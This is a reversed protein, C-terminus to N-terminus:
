FFSFLCLLFPLVSKKSVDDDTFPESSDSDATGHASGGIGGGSRNPNDQQHHSRVGAGGGAGMGVDVSGAIKGASSPRALLKSELNRHWFLFFSITRTTRFHFYWM